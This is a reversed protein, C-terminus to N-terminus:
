ITEWIQTVPIWTNDVEIDTGDFFQGGGRFMERASRLVFLRRFKGGEQGKFDIMLCKDQRSGCRNTIPNQKM